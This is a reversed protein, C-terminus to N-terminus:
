SMQSQRADVYRRPKLKNATLDPDMRRSRMDNFATPKSIAVPEEVEQIVTEKTVITKTVPLSEKLPFSVNIPRANATKEMNVIKQGNYEIVEGPEQLTGTLKITGDFVGKTPLRSVAFVNGLTFARSKVVEEVNFLSTLYRNFLIIFVIHVIWLIFIIGMLIAAIIAFWRANTGDSTTTDLLSLSYIILLLMGLILLFLIIEFVFTGIGFNAAEIAALDLEDPYRYTIYFAVFFLLFLIIGLGAALYLMWRANSHNTAQTSSGTTTLYSAAIACLIASAAVFIIMLVVSVYQWTYYPYM